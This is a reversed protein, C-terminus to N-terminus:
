PRDLIPDDDLVSGQGTEEEYSERENEKVTSHYLREYDDNTIFKNYKYQWM